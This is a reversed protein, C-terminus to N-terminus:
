TNRELRRSLRLQLLVIIGVAIMFVVALASAQGYKAQALGSTLISQTITYTSYGPGGGTLAIPLAYVNLGATMLLFTSVTVAPALLPATIFRFRQVANAGDIRAVEYYDEPISQLYALYLIAHWGTSTWVGVVIVSLQALMPDSLWPVPGIGATDRLVTNLAGSGLPNLIFNWVLGLVAISPIAPFFTLARVFRRGLFRQNLIVALPIALVTILVTTGLAFAITFGLGALLSPDTFVRVYNELGVFDITPDFGSFDTFSYYVSQAFPVGVLVTFVLAIPILFLQSQTAESWRISWTRARRVGLGTQAIDAM